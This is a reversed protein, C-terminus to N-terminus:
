WEPEEYRRCLEDNEAKLLQDIHRKWTVVNSIKVLYTLPGLHKIITGSVWRRKKSSYDCALVAQGLEFYRTERNRKSDQVNTQRENVKSALDPKVLDLRSRLSRKMLLMAPSENTTSNPTNRYALLLNDLKHLIDVKEKRGRLLSSKFIGVFREAMGNSSPHFPASRSHRIGNNKMFNAFEESTFTPGNDSVLQKCVGYRAFIHRLEEITRQSTISRMPIVEAWKSYADIVVSMMMDMFPGAFDVHIREWANSPFEWMHLEANAPMKQTKKVRNEISNTLQPWWVYSRALAKM